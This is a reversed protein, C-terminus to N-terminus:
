KIDRGNKQVIKKKAVMGRRMTKGNIQLSFTQKDRKKNACSLSM